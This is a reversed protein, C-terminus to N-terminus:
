QSRPYTKRFILKKDWVKTEKLIMINSSVYSKKTILM